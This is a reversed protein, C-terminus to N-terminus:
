VDRRIYTTQEFRGHVLHFRIWGHLNFFVIEKKSKKLNDDIICEVDNESESESWGRKRFSSSSSHQKSLHQHQLNKPGTMTSQKCAFRYSFSFPCDCYVCLIVCSIVCLCIEQSLKKDIVNKKV